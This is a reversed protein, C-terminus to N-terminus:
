TQAYYIREYKQEPKPDAAHKRIRERLHFFLNTDEDSHNEIYWWLASTLPLQDTYDIKDQPTM